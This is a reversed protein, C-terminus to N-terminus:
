RRRRPTQKGGEGRPSPGFLSGVAIGIPLACYGVILSLASVAGSRLILWVGGFLLLMKLLAIIGWPATNGKKTLFAQGVKAFVWLNATAILGGVLVGFGTSIGGVAFGAVAFCLGCFFVSMISARMPGDGVGAAAERDEDTPQESSPDPEDGDRFSDPSGEGDRKPDRTSM